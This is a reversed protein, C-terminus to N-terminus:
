PEKARTLETTASDLRMRLVEFELQLELLQNRLEAECPSPLCPEQWYPHEEEWQWLLRQLASSTRPGCAVVHLGHQREAVVPVAQCQAVGGLLMLLALHVVRGHGKM